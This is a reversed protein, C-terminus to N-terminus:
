RRTRRRGPFPWRFTAALDPPYQNDFTNSQIDFDLAKAEARTLVLKPLIVRLRALMAGAPTPPLPSSAEAVGARGARPALDRRGHRPAAAALVGITRRSLSRRPM